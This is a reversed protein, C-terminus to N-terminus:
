EFGVNLMIFTQQFLELTSHYSLDTQYPGISPCRYPFLAPSREPIQPMLFYM